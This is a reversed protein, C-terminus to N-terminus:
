STMVTSCFCFRAQEGKLVFCLIVVSIDKECDCCLCVCGNRSSVLEVRLSCDVIEFHLGESDGRSEEGSHSEGLRMAVVVAGNM